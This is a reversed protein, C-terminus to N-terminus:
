PRAEKWTELHRLTVGNYTAEGFWAALGGCKGCFRQGEELRAGCQKTRGVYKSPPRSEPLRGRCRWTFGGSGTVAYEKRPQFARVEGAEVTM